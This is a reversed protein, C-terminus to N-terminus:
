SERLKNFLIAETREAIKVRTKRLKTRIFSPKERLIKSIEAYSFDHQDRLLIRVRDRWPQFSLSELILAQEPTIGKPIKFVEDSLEKQMISVFHRFLFLLAERNRSDLYSIKNMKSFAKVICVEGKKKNSGLLSFLFQNLRLAHISIFERFYQDVPM